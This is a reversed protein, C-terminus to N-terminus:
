DEDNGGTEKPVADAANFASASGRQATDMLCEYLGVNFQYEAAERKKFDHPKVKKLYGDAVAFKLLSAVTDKAMGLREAVIKCPLLIPEKGRVVQLWGALSILRQYLRPRREADVPRLGLPTQLSRVFAVDLPGGIGAPFRIEDWTALFKVEAEDRSVDFHIEWPDGHTSEKVRQNRALVKEAARFAQKATVGSTDRLYALHLIFFFLGGVWQQECMAYREEGRQLAWEIIEHLTM